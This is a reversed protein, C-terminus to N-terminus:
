AHRRLSEALATAGSDIRWQLLLHGREDICQVMWIAADEAVGLQCLEAVAHVPRNPGWGYVLQRFNKGFAKVVDVFFVFLSLRLLIAVDIATRAIHSAM